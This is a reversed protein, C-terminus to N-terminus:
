LPNESDPPLYTAQSSVLQWGRQSNVYVHLLRMQSNFQKDRFIGRGTWACTAVATERYICVSINSAVFSDYKILTTQVAGIFKQKNVVQGHSLTGVFDDSYVRRFFTGDNLQIAHAAERELSVIEQRQLEPDGGAPEAVCRQICASRAEQETQGPSALVLGIAMAATAIMKSM